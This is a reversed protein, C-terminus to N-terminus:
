AAKIQSVSGKPKSKNSMIDQMEIFHKLGEEMEVKSDFPGIEVGERTSFFYKGSVRYYRESRFRTQEQEGARVKM